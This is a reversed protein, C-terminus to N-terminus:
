RPVEFRATRNGCAGGGYQKAIARVDVRAGTGSCDPCPKYPPILRDGNCAECEGSVLVYTRVGSADSYAAAFPYPERACGVNCAAGYCDSDCEFWCPIHRQLAKAVPLALEAFPGVSVTPIYGLWGRNDHWDLRDDAALGREIAQARTIAAFPRLRPLRGLEAGACVREVFLALVAEAMDLAPLPDGEQRDSECDVTYIAESIDDRLGSM